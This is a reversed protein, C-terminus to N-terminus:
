GPSTRASRASFWTFAALIPPTSDNQRTRHPGDGPFPGPMWTSCWAGRIRLEGDRLDLGGTGHEHRGHRDGPRSTSHETTCTSRGSKSWLPSRRGRLAKASTRSTMSPLNPPRVAWVRAGASPSQSPGEPGVVRSSMTTVSTSHGSSSRAHHASSRVRSSRSKRWSRITTRACTTCSSHLLTGGGLCCRGPVGHDQAGSGGPQARPEPQRPRAPTDEHNVVPRWAVAPGHAQVSVQTELLNRGQLECAPALGLNPVVATVHPPEPHSPDSTHPIEEDQVSGGSAARVTKDGSRDEHGDAEFVLDGAPCPRPVPARDM